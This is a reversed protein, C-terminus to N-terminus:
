SQVMYGGGLIALPLVRHGCLVCATACKHEGRGPVRSYTRILCSSINSAFVCSVHREVKIQTDATAETVTGPYQPPVSTPLLPPLVSTPLLSPPVSTPLLAPLSFFEIPPLTPVAPTPSFPLDLLCPDDLDFESRCKRRRKAARAAGENSAESLYDEAQRKGTTLQDASVLSVGPWVASLALRTLTERKQRAASEERRRQRNRQVLSRLREVIVQKSPTERGGSGGSDEVGASVEGAATSATIDCNLDARQAQHM